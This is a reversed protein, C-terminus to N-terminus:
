EVLLKGEFKNGLQNTANLHMGDPKVLCTLIWAGGPAQANPSRLVIKDEDM